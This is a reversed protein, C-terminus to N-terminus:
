LEKCILYFVHSVSDGFLNNWGYIVLNLDIRGKVNLSEFSSFFLCSRWIIPINVKKAFHPKTSTLKL